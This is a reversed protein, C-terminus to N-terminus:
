YSRNSLRKWTNSSVNLVIQHWRSVVSERGPGWKQV